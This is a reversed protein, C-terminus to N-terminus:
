LCRWRGCHYWRWYHYQRWHRCRWGCWALTVHGSAAVGLALPAAPGAYSTRAAVFISVLIAATFATRIM